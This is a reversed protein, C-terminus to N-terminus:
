KRLFSRRRGRTAEAAKINGGGWTLGSKRERFPSDNMGWGRAGSGAKKIEQKEKGRGEYSKIIRDIKKNQRHKDVLQLPLYVLGLLVMGSILFVNEGRFDIFIGLMRIVLLITGAIGSIFIALKM